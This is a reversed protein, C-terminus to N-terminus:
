PSLLTNDGCLADSPVVVDQGFVTCSCTAQCEALQDRQVWLAVFLGAVIALGIVMMLIRQALRAIVFAVVVLGAMVVISLGRLREADLWGPLAALGATADM